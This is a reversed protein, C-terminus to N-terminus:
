ARVPGALAAPRRYHDVRNASLSRACTLGGSRRSPRDDATAAPPLRVTVKSHAPLRPPISQGNPLLIGTDEFAVVGNCLLSWGQQPHSAVIHAAERDAADAPPCPPQHQCM